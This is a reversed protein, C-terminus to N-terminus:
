RCVPICQVSSSPVSYLIDRLKQDQRDDLDVPSIRGTKGMEHIHDLLLAIEVDHCHILLHQDAFGLVRLIKKCFITSILLFFQYVGM